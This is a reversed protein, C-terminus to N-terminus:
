RADSSAPKTVPVIREMSPPSVAHRSRLFLAMWAIEDHRGGDTRAMDLRGLGDRALHAADILVGDDLDDIEHRAADRRQVPEHLADVQEHQREHGVEIVAAVLERAAVRAPPQRVRREREDHVPAHCLEDVAEMGIRDDARMREGLAGAREDLLERLPLEAEADHQRIIRQVFDPDVRADIVVEDGDRLHLFAEDCLAKGLAGDM